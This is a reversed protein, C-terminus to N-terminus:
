FSPIIKEIVENSVKKLFTYSLTFDQIFDRLHFCGSFLTHPKALGTRHKRLM